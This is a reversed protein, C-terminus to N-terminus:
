SGRNASHRSRIPSFLGWSELEPTVRAHGVIEYGFYQYLSLNRVVETTLSVGHSRPDDDALKAIAELLPRALGRGMHAHRVGIMNLHHHPEAVTFAKTTNAYTDYRARADDGIERWLEDRRAIVDPPPGPEDPLTLAAAAVVAEGDVMGFLPAGHRTRRYVFFGILRRLRDDYDAHDPGVIFRMVPYDHFADTM